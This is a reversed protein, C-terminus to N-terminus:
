TDATVELSSSMVAHMMPTQLDEDQVLPKQYDQDEQIQNVFPPLGDKEGPASPETRHRQVVRTSCGYEDIIQICQDKNIVVPAKCGKYEVVQMHSDKEQLVPTSHYKEDAVLASPDTEKAVTQRDKEEAAPISRELIPTSQDNNKM